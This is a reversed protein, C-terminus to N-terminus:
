NYKKKSKLINDLFKKDYVIDTHMLLVPLKKKGFIKLLMGAVVTDMKKLTKLKLLILNLEKLNKLYKIIMNSKYGLIINIEKANRELLDSLIKEIITKGNVKLLCKPKSEGIKGLRRGVGASLLLISFKSLNTM